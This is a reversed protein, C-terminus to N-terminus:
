ETHQLLANLGTNFAKASSYSGPEEELSCISGVLIQKQESLNNQVKLYKKRM